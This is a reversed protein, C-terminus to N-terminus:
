LSDTVRLSYWNTQLSLNKKKEENRVIKKKMKKKGRRRNVQYAFARAQRGASWYTQDTAVAGVRGCVRRM